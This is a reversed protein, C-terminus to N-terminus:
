WTSILQTDTYVPLEDVSEMVLNGTSFAYYHVVIKGTDRDASVFQHGQLKMWEYVVQRLFRLTKRQQMALIVVGALTKNGVYNNSGDM